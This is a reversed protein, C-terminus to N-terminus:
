AIVLNNFSPVSFLSPAEGETVKPVTPQKRDIGDIAGPVELSTRPALFSRAWPAFTSGSRSIFSSAGNSSATMRHPAAGTMM